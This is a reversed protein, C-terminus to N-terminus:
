SELNELANRAVCVFDGDAYLYVCATGASIVLAGSTESVSRLNVSEGILRAWLPNESVDLVVGDDTWFSKDQLRLRGQITTLEWSAYKVIDDEFILRVERDLRHMEGRLLNRFTALERELLSYKVALLRM